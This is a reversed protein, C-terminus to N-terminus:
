ARALRALRIFLREVLALGPTARGSRLRLEAEMIQGLADELRETGFARVQAAMRSRRPGFVPPRARALAGDPGGAHVSAAHLTRFHRAAIITLSTASTSPGLAAFARAVEGARGDAALDVLAALDAEAAAPAVAAIDASAVGGPAARMYLSLKVLFQEFDGPDLSAALAELDAMAEPEVQSLGERALAATIEDRRMPDAYIGIAFANKAAEMAKRLSSRPGLAGACLVITADGPRWDELAARVPATIGDGAEEVLVARAGPFFGTAKVADSLAAPDRRLDTGSLQTLRMEASGDPGILTAILARRKHSIRVPDPGFLLCGAAGTGPNELYRAADRGTLKM